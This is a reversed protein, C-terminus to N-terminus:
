IKSKENSSNKLQHQHYSYDISFVPPTSSNPLSFPLHHFSPNFWKLPPHFFLLSKPFYPPPLVSDSCRFFLLSKPFTSPPLSSTNVVSHFWPQPLLLFASSLQRMGQCRGGGKSVIFKSELSGGKERVIEMTWQGKINGVNRATKIFDKGRKVEWVKLLDDQKIQAIFDNEKSVVVPSALSRLIPFFISLYEFFQSDIIWFYNITFFINLVVKTWSVTMMALLLLLM